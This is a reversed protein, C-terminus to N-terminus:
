SPNIPWEDLIVPFDLQMGLFSRLNKGVLDSELDAEFGLPALM